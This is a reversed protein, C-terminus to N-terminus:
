RHPKHVHGFTIDVGILILPSLDWNRENTVDAGPEIHLYLWDRLIQQRYPLRLSYHDIRASPETHAVVGAKIGIMRKDSLLRHLSLSHGHDLGLSEQSWTAASSATFRNREGLPRSFTLRTTEGAGEDNEWFVDQRLEIIWKKLPTTKAAGAIKIKPIPEPEFDMGLRLDLSYQIQDVLRFQLGASKELGEQERLRESRADDFSELVDEDDNINDFFLAVRNETHPLDMHGSFRMNPEVGDTESVTIRPSLVVRTSSAVADAVRFEASSQDVPIDNTASDPEFFTEYLWTDLKHAREILQTTIKSQVDDLSHMVTKSVPKATDEGQATLVVVSLALLILGRQQPRRSSRRGPPM